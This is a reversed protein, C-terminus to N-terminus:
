GNDQSPEHPDCAAELFDQAYAIAARVQEASLRPAYDAVVADISGSVYLKALIRGVSLRTSAIHPMGGLVQQDTCILPHEKCLREALAIFAQKAIENRNPQYEIRPKARSDFAFLFNGYPLNAQQTASDFDPIAAKERSADAHVRRRRSQRVADSVLIQTEM